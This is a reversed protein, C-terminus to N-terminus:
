REDVGRGLGRRKRGAEGRREKEAGKKNGELREVGRAGGGRGEDTEEGVRELKGM